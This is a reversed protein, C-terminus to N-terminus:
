QFHYFWLGRALIWHSKLSKKERQTPITWQSVIPYRLKVKLTRGQAKAHKPDPAVRIQSIQIHFTKSWVNQYQVWAKRRTQNFSKSKSIHTLPVCILLSTYFFFGIALTCIHPFEKKDFGVKWIQPHKQEGCELTHMQKPVIVAKNFFSLIIVCVDSLYMLLSLIIINLPFFALRSVYLYTIQTFKHSEKVDQVQLYLLSM